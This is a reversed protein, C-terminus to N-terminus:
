KERVAGGARLLARVLQPQRRTGTKNFVATLHTRVTTPSIGLRRATAKLGDGQLMQSAVAAEMRTLGFSQRLVAGDPDSGREPDTVFLMAAPRRPMVWDTEARLPIILATLPSRGDGRSIRLWGGSCEAGDVIPGAADAVVRHLAGTDAHRDARLVDDVGRHLGARDGLIEVAARNAFRVRCKADVLMTAQHLRDLIEVSVSRTMELLALRCSLQMARQLHPLLERLLAADVGDFPELRGPRWVGLSAWFTDDAILKAGIAEDLELPAFFENHIATRAFEPKPVLDRNTFVKGVPRRLGAEVLPNHHVWHNLYRGTAEPPIRPAIEDAAGTTADYSSIQGVTAGMLDALRDAVIPWVSRDLAAEYMLGILEVRENTQYM